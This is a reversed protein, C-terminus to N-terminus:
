FTKSTIALDGVVPKEEKTFLKIVNTVSGNIDFDSTGIELKFNTLNITGNIGKVRNAGPIVFSVDTLVIESQDSDQVFIKSAIVFEDKLDLNVSLNGSLSDILNIKFIKDFGYVDTKLNFKIDVKPAAFNQILFHGDMKGGPM